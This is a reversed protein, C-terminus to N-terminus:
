LSGLVIAVVLVLVFAWFFVGVTAEARAEAEAEAPTLPRTPTLAALLLVIALAGFVFPVWAVGWAVPGVPSVWTGIAWAGLFVVLFFWLFGGGPGPTAWPGRRGFLLAVVSVLLIGVILAVLFEAVLM